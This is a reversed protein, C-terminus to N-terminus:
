YNRVQNELKAKTLMSKLDIICNVLQNDTMIKLDKSTVYILKDM